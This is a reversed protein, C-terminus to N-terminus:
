STIDRHNCYKELHGEFTLSGWGASLTYGYRAHNELKTQLLYYSREGTEMM